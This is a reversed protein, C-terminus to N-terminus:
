KVPDAKVWANNKLEVIIVDSEDMGVHSKASFRVDQISEIKPASELFSKVAKPDSPDKVNELIAQAMDVQIKGLLNLEDIREGSDKEYQAKFESARKREGPDSHLDPVMATITTGMLRPPLVRKIVRIFLDSINAYSVILPKKLGLNYYSKVVTAAGRGSYSSYIVPVNANALSALQTSADTAKLDIRELVLGIKAAGFVERASKVGVEGSADTAAVMGISNLGNQKLFKAIGRTLDEDSPSSQFVYSDAPPVINPSPVLMVPGTKVLTEMARISATLSNGFLIHVKARLLDRTCSVAKAPNAEDNCTILEVQRGKIGGRENVKKVWWKAVNDLRIGVSAAPGSLPVVQGIKWTEAHAVSIAVTGAFIGAITILVCKRKM